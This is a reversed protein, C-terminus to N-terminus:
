FHIKKVFFINFSVTSVGKPSMPNLFMVRKQFNCKKDNRLSINSGKNFLITSLYFYKTYRHSTTDFGSSVMINYLGQRCFGKVFLWLLLSFSICVFYLVTQRRFLSLFLLANGCTCSEVDFLRFSIHIVYTHHSVWKLSEVYHM